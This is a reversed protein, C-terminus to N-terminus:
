PHATCVESVVRPPLLDSRPHDVSEPKYKARRVLSNMGVILLKRLYRDGM